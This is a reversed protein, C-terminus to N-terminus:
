LGKERMFIEDEATMINDWLVQNLPCKQANASNVNSKWVVLLVHFFTRSGNTGVECSFVVRSSDM